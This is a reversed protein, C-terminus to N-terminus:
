DWSMPNDDWTDWDGDKGASWVVVRKPLTPRGEQIQDPNPNALQKDFNTDLRIKYPNGWADVVGYPGSTGNPYLGNMWINLTEKRTSKKAPKIGEAFDTRRPNLLTSGEKEKGLLITIIPQTSSSDTDADTTLPLTPNTSFPLTNYDSYFQEVANAIAIAMVLAEKKRVGQIQQGFQYICLAGFAMLIALAWLISRCGSPLIPAKKQQSASPRPTPSPDSM